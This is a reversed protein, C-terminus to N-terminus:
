FSLGKITIEEFKTLSEYTRIVYDVKFGQKRLSTITGLALQYAIINDHTDRKNYSDEAREKYESLLTILRPIESNM